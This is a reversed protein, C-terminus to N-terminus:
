RDVAVDLQVSAINVLSAAAVQGGTFSIGAGTADAYAFLAYAGASKSLPGGITRTSAPTAAVTAPISTTTITPYTVCGNTIKTAAWRTEKLTGTSDVTLLVLAPAAGTAAIPDSALGSYVMLTSATAQVVAPVSNCSNTVARIKTGFRIVNSAENMVNTAVGSDVSAYRASTSVKGTTIFLTGALVLLVTLIGMAVILEVLSVGREDAAATHLRHRLARIM